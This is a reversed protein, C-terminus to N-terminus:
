LHLVLYKYQNFNHLFKHHQNNLNNHSQPPPNLNLFHHLTCWEQIIMPHVGWVGRQPVRRFAHELKHNQKAVQKQSIKNEKKKTARAKKIYARLQKPIKDDM